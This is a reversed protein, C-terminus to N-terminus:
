SIWWIYCAIAFIGLAVFVSLLFIGLLGLDDMGDDEYRQM